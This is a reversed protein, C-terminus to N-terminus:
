TQANLDGDLIQLWSIIPMSTERRKCALRIDKKVTLNPCEAQAEWLHAFAVYQGGAVLGLDMVPLRLTALDPNGVELEKQVSRVLEALAINRQNCAEQVILSLGGVAMWRHQPYGMLAENKLIICRELLELASISGDIEFAIAACGLHKRTCGACTERIQGQGCNPCSM